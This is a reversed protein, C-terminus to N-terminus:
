LHGSDAQRSHVKAGTRARGTSSERDGFLRHKMPQARVWNLHFRVSEGSYVAAMSGGLSIGLLAVGALAVLPGFSTGEAFVWGIYSYQTPNYTGFVLIAAFVWRGIFSGINFETAM